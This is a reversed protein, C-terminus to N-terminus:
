LVQSRKRRQTWRVFARQFPVEACYALLLSIAVAIAARLYPNALSGLYATYVTLPYHFVYLAYSIPAFFSFVGFVITFGRWRLESWALGLCLVIFCAVFHRVELIPHFGFSLHEPRAMLGLMVAPVFLCFTALVLVSGRQTYFTPRIGRCYTRALEVGTWWMIFYLLFLCVQNPWIAYGFLGVLSLITVLPLQFRDSVKSYIPFFMMYFWWEYSLSWLPVNGRFTDVWVGPKGASFDQLMFINGVLNGWDLHPDGAAIAVLYSLGLALLYIPFIRRSRRILYTSFRHDHHLHHSYYIVFGSLLFFCMVAEQGFKLIFAVIGTRDPSQGAYVHGAFVYVSACGRLM